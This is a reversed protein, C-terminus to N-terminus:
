AAHNNANRIEQNMADELESEIAQNVSAPNNVAGNLASTAQNMAQNMADTLSQDEQEGGELDASDIGLILSNLHGRAQKMEENMAKELESINATDDNGTATRGISSTAENM